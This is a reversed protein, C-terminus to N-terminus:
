CRNKACKLYPILERDVVIIHDIVWERALVVIEGHLTEMAELYGETGERSAVLKSLKEQATELSTLIHLHKLKHEQLKPYNIEIQIIEEREFHVKTYSFLQDFLAPLKMLGDCEKLCSEMSNFLALLHKHDQDIVGNGISLKDRWTVGM